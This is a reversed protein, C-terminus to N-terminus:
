SPSPTPADPDSLRFVWFGRALTADLTSAQIQMEASGRRLPQPPMTFRFYTETLLDRHLPRGNITVSWGSEAVEHDVSIGVTDGASVELTAVYDDLAQFVSEQSGAGSVDVSCDEQTYARAPDSSWCLAERHVSTTGSFVTAGPAPKECATLALAAVPLALALVLRRSPM